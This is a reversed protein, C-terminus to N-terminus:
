KRKLKYVKIMEAVAKKESGNKIQKIVCTSLHNELLVDEVNSLGQKVASSQTIVDICYAGKEVMEQLGRVQGEIIKLRRILKGKGSDHAHKM